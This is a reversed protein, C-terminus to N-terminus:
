WDCSYSCNVAHGRHKITWVIMSMVRFHFKDEANIGNVLLWQPAGTSWSWTKALAKTLPVSVLIVIGEIHKM